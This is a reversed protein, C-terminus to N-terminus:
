TTVLRPRAAATIMGISSASSRTNAFASSNTVIRRRARSAYRLPRDRGSRSSLQDVGVLYEKRRRSRAGVALKRSLNSRADPSTELAKGRSRRYGSPDAALADPRNLAGGVRKVAEADAVVADHVVHDVAVTHEMHEADDM